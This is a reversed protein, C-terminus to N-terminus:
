VHVIKVREGVCTAGDVGLAGEAVVDPQEKLLAGFWVLLMDSAREKARPVAGGVVDNDREIGNHLVDPSSLPGVAIM